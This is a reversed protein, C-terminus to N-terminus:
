DEFDDTLREALKRSVAFLGIGVVILVAGLVIRWFSLPPPTRGQSAPVRHRAFELGTEMVGLVLLASAIVCILTRVQRKV